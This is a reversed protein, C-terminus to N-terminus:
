SQWPVIQDLLHLLFAYKRITIFRIVCVFLVFIPPSSKRFQACFNFTKLRMESLKLSCPWIQWTLRNFTGKPIDLQISILLSYLTNREIGSWTSVLKNKSSGNFRAQGLTRITRLARTICVQRRPTTEICTKWWPFLLTHEGLRLCLVPSM